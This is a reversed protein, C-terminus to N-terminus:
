VALAPMRGARRGTVAWYVSGGVFGSIALAFLPSDLTLPYKALPDTLPAGAAFGIIVGAIGGGLAFYIWRRLALFETLGIGIIAPLAAAGIVGAYVVPTLSFAELGGVATAGISDSLIDRVVKLVLGTVAAALCALCYGLLIRLSRRMSIRGALTLAPIIVPRLPFAFEASL